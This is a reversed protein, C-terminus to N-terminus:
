SFEGLFEGGYQSFPLVDSLEVLLDSLGGSYDQQPALVRSDLDERLPLLITCSAGGQAQTSLLLRGGHLAAIQQCLPLGLNLSKEGVGETAQAPSFATGLRHSPFGTGNDTLTLHVVGKQQTLTLTLRDARASISNSVLQLILKRLLDPNALVLPTAKSVWQLTVKKAGLPGELEWCLNRCLASLDVAEMSFPVGDLLEGYVQLTDSTRQLRCLEQLLRAQYDARSQAEAGQPLAEAMGMLRSLPGRLATSLRRFTDPSLTGEQALPHLEVVLEEGARRCFLQLRTGGVVLPTSWAASKRLAEEPLLFCEPLPAGPYLPLECGRLLHLAARNAYSLGEAGYILIGGPAQDFYENTPFIAM